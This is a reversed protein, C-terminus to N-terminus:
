SQYRQFLRIVCGCEVAVVRCCCREVERAMDQSIGRPHDNESIVMSYSTLSRDPEVCSALRRYKGFTSLVDKLLDRKQMGCVTPMWQQENNSKSATIYLFPIDSKLTIGDLRPWFIKASM